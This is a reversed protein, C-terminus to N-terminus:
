ASHSDIVSVEALLEPVIAAAEGREGRLTAADKVAKTITSMAQQPRTQAPITNELLALVAEGASLRRPQWTADPSYSALVVLGVPLPDIGAAGGITEVAHDTQSFGGDRISLPKPYPEVQGSANLVAFEDSYYTAGARVLERVLTTKGSFSVGPIVIARGRHGVVGAHVFIHNPADAAIHARLRSDLVELAIQLDSSGSATDGRRDVSYVSNEQPRLFFHEDGEAPEREKSGPPLVTRVRPMLQAPAVISIGVGFADIGMEAAEVGEGLDHDDGQGHEHVHGDLHVHTHRPGEPM